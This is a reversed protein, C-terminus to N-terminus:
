GRKKIKKVLSDGKEEFGGGKERPLYARQGSDRLLKEVLIKGL